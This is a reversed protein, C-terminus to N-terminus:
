ARLPRGARLRARRRRAHRRPPRRRAARLVALLEDELDLATVEVGAAALALTVRGTGAGVDLVPGHHESALEQWLPLDASYAGCEVDHWAAAPATM